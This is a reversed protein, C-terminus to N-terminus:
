QLFEGEKEPDIVDFYVKETDCMGGVTSANIFGTPELSTDRIGADALAERMAILGLLTTRTYGSKGAVEAMTKLTDTSHRVEAIPLIDKYITDLHQTYGLGSKQTCLSQLNGAVNDGIATVMGLGTILVREAM